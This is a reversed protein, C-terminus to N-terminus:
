GLGALIEAVSALGRGGDFVFRCTRALSRSPL